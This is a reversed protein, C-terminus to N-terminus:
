KIIEVVRTTTYYRLSPFRKLITGDLRYLPHIFNRAIPLVQVLNIYPLTFARSRYESFGAAFSKLEEDTLPREFPSIDPAHYPVLGRLMKMLKSNRVPEQFIAQGGRRLVRRVERASLTLDLHHLIAMGFVVDVSEDPLPLDHASGVIFEVNASIRNAALRRCAVSILDPSIDLAKVKAGRRALVLTNSGDGCGYELVTKGRVDGLLHYSYELPYYTDAPPDLYRRVQTEDALLSTVDIRSAESASREAEVREWKRIEEQKATL